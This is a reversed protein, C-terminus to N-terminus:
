INIKYGMARLSDAMSRTEADRGLAKLLEMRSAIQRPDDTIVKPWAILATEWAARAAALNGAAHYSFGLMSNARVLNEQRLIAQTPTILQAEALSRQAWRLADAPQRREISIRSRMASCSVRYERASTRSSDLSILHEVLSCAEDILASSSDIQRELLLVRALDLKAGATYEVSLSNDPEQAILSQGLAVASSLLATGNAVDGTSVLWRGLMRRAPLLRIQLAMDDPSRRVLTELIQIQRRRKAIAEDIKGEGFQADALWALTEPLSLRYDRNNPFTATLGEVTRLAAEFQRSAAAFDQREQLMVGLNSDAYKTEMRWKANDPELAVMRDALRKYERMSQEAERIQGRKLATDGVWFVNQAHDFLRLPSDPVRRVLEATSDMSERYRALAGDLDGRTTAIEGLLTLARSRQALAEDSLESKDQKEFYALAKAGVKDLATLKNIPELEARLDGLMFSILGEAERRQDRAEDRKDFAFVALGSTVAMGAISAAAIYTLRRQRRQQDRQVLDDLGLGFMGAILKLLGTQPGDGSERLDAAIPEAARSTVKGRRDVHVRLAPPFCEEAERGAMRSAWPEGDIVAALVRDEGHTKKFGIIEENVWNSRAASPSCLVILFRSRGLAERIGQGLDSSAALEHRDRFIPSLKKPIAGNATLRGVLGAPVRYTEIAKHLWDAHDSDAHSYSLFAWYASTDNGSGPGSGAGTDKDRSMLAM